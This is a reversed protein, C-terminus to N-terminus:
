LELLLRAPDEVGDKIMRLFGIAERGDLIRHDYTLALYMMPRIVIEGDRVVPREQISHMGLIATQPPNPIPTSLMSGFVGGNSITFTGGMLENPMIKKAQARKAFDVIATEIDAFNKRDIDRLVPTILGRETSIAVSIDYFNNYVINEGDVFANVAPFHQLANVSAKLFLSMYGLRVGHAKEFKEKYERRMTVAAQMDVENFTTLHAAAHKGEVLREAIRKRLTTMPVRKQREAQGELERPSPPAAPPSGPATPSAAPSTSPATPRTPTSSPAASSGVSHGSSPASTQPSKVFNQIDEKTLRGSPDSASIDAPNLDLEEVLRRVAPSLDNLTRPPAPPAPPAPSVPPPPSATPPSKATDASVSPQPAPSKTESSENITGVVAGIEVETGEAAVIHLTGTAPAPIEMTAKDTELEFLNDGEHVLEGEKKLWTTVIGSSISEGIDPVAVHTMM